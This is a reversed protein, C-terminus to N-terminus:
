LQHLKLGRSAPDPSMHLLNYLLYLILAVCTVYKLLYSNRHGFLGLCECLQSTFPVLM